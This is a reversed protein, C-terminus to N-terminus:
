QFMFTDGRPPPSWWPAVRMDIPVNVPLPTGQLIVVGGVLLPIGTPIAVGGAHELDRANASLQQLTGAFPQALM